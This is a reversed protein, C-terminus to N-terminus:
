IEGERYKKLSENYENSRHKRITEYINASIRQKALNAGELHFRYKPNKRIKNLSIYKSKKKEKTIVNKDCNFKVM